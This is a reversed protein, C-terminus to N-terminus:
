PGPRPAFAPIRSWPGAHAPQGGHGTHRLVGGDVARVRRPRSPFRRSRRSAGLPGGPRSSGGEMREGGEAGSRLSDDRVSPYPGGGQLRCRPSLPGAVGPIRSAQEGAGAGAALCSPKRPLLVGDALRIARQHVDGGGDTGPPRRVSARPVLRLVQLHVARRGEVGPLLPLGREGRPAHRERPPFRVAGAGLDLEPHLHVEPSAPNRASSRRPVRGM